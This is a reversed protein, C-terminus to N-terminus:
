YESNQRDEKRVVNSIEVPLTISHDRFYAVVNERLGDTYPTNYVISLRAEVEGRVVEPLEEYGKDDYGAYQQKGHVNKTLEISTYGGPTGRIHLVLAGGMTIDIYDESITRIYYQITSM